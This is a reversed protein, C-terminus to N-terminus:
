MGKMEKASSKNFPIVSGSLTLTTRSADDWPYVVNRVAEDAPAGERGAHLIAVLDYLGRLSKLSLSGDAIDLREIKRERVQVIASRIPEEGFANELEARLKSAKGRTTKHDAVVARGFIAALYIFDHPLKLALYGLCKLAQGQVLLPEDISADTMFIDLCRFSRSSGSALEVAAQFALRRIQLVERREDISRASEYAIALLQLSNPLVDVLSKVPLRCGLALLTRAVDFQADDKFETEAWLLAVGKEMEVQTVSPLQGYVNKLDEVLGAENRGIFSRACPFADPVRQDSKPMKKGTYVPIGAKLWNAFDRGDFTFIEPDLRGRLVM